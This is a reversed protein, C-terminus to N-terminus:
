FRRVIEILGRAILAIPAGVLLIALPFVLVVLLLLMADDLGAM